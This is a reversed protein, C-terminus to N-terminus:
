ALIIPLKPLFNKCLHQNHKAKYNNINFIQLTYYYTNQFNCNNCSMQNRFRKVEFNIVKM